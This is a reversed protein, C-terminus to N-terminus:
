PKVICNDDTRLYLVSIALCATRHCEAAADRM